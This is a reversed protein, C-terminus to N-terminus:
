DDSVECAKYGEMLARFVGEFDFLREIVQNVSESLVDKAIPHESSGRGSTVSALYDIVIRQGEDYDLAQSLAIALFAPMYSDYYKIKETGRERTVHLTVFVIENLECLWGCIEEIRMEIDYIANCIAREREKQVFDSIGFPSSKIKAILEEIPEDNAGREEDYQYDSIKASDIRIM